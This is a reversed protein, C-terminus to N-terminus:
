KVKKDLLDQVDDYINDVILAIGEKNPHIGDDLNYRAEMAVDELFFPYYVADYEDALEEYMEQFNGGFIADYNRFSRMGALLVPIKRDKLIQLMKEFNGRTVKRDVQRMMDNAGLVIIVYDPNQKLNWELRTLGASTTDGSVGANIVSIDHGETKLKRELQAPFSDEPPLRYGAVLSDGFVMLKKGAAAQAHAMQASGANVFLAFFAMIAALHKFNKM